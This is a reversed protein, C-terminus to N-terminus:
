QELLSPYDRAGHLVHLVRVAEPHVVYFILYSGFNCRRIGQKEFGQLVPYARPRSGITAIHARLESVFSAARVPNDRAIWRRIQRIDIAARDTIRVRM